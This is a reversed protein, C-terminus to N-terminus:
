FQSDDVSQGDDSANLRDWVSLNAPVSPVSQIFDSIWHVSGDCFATNVGSAHMSRAGTQVNMNWGFYCPMGERILGDSGGFSAQVSDCAVIDDSLAGPCNPGYDDGLVGGHCWMASAGGSMAWVGRSDVKTVGARVEGLLITNSAGDRIHAMTVSSNAGMVGRLYSTKWAISDSFAAGVGDDSAYM